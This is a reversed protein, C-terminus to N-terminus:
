EARGNAPPGAAGGLGVLRRGARRQGPTASRRNWGFREAGLRLCRVLQRQACPRAPPEPARQTPTLAACKGPGAQTDNLVRCEVPDMGLKEAMEDMAAELAMMGPAEGPARMANGEPLDLPALRMAM